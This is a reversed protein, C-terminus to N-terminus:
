VSSACTSRPLTRMQPVAVELDGQVAALVESTVDHQRDESRGCM